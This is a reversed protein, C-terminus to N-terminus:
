QEVPELQNLLEQAVRRYPSQENTDLALIRQANLGANDLDDEDLYAQMQVTLAPLNDADRQLVQAATTYAKWVENTHLAYAVHLKRMEHLLDAQGTAQLLALQKAFVDDALEEYGMRYLLSAANAYDTPQYREALEMLRLTAVLVGEWDERAQAQTAHQMYVKIGDQPTAFTQYRRFRTAIDEGTVQAIATDLRRFGNGDDMAVIADLIARLVGPGYRQTLGTAEEVALAWRAATLESESALPTAVEYGPDMWYYLNTKNVLNNYLSADPRFATVAEDNVFRRTMELATVTSFGEVFWRYYPDRPEIRSLIMVQTTDHFAQGYAARQAIRLADLLANVQAAAPETDSIPLPLVAVPDDAPGGLIVGFYYEATDTRPDYSFGPLEAGRRLAEKVTTQRVLYIHLPPPINLLRPTSDLVEVLVAAHDEVAQPTSEIGVVAHLERVLDDARVILQDSTQQQSREFTLHSEITRRVAGVQNALGLEFHLVVGNFEIQALEFADWAVRPDITQPAENEALEDVEEQGAGNDAAPPVQQQDSPADGPPAVQGPVVTLLVGTLVLALLRSM